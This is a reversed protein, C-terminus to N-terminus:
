SVQGFDQLAQPVSSSVRSNFFGDVGQGQTNRELFDERSHFFDQKQPNPIGDGKSYGSGFWVQHAFHLFTTFITIKVTGLAFFYNRSFTTLVFIFVIDSPGRWNETGSHSPLFLQKLIPRKNDIFDEFYFFYFCAYFIKFDLIKQFSDCSFSILVQFNPTRWITPQFIWAAHKNGPLSVPFSPLQISKFNGSIDPHSIIPSECSLFKLKLVM